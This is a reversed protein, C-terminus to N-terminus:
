QRPRRWAEFFEGLQDELEAWLESHPELPPAGALIHRYQEKGILKRPYPRGRLQLEASLDDYDRDIPEPARDLMDRRWAAIWRTDLGHDDLGAYRRGEAAYREMNKMAQHALFSQLLRLRQISTM